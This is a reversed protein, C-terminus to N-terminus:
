NQLIRMENEIKAIKLREANIEREAFFNNIEGTRKKLITMRIQHLKEKMERDRESTEHPIKHHVKRFIKDIRLEPTVKKRLLFVLRM